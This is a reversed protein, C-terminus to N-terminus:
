MAFAVKAGNQKLASEEALEILRIVQAAQEPKVALEAKNVIADYINEYYKQYCGPVTEIKGQVHVSAPLNTDITGWM